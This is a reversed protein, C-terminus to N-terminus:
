EAAKVHQRLGQIDAELQICRLREAQLQEYCQDLELRLNAVQM